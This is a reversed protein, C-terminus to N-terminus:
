PDRYIRHGGIRRWRVLLEGDVAVLEFTARGDPFAAHADRAAACAHVVNIFARRHEAILTPFDRDFRPSSQYKM